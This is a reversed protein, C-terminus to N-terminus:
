YHQSVPALIKTKTQGEPPVPVKILSQRKKKGDGGKPDPWNPSM